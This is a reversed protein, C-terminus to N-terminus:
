GAGNRRELRSVIAQVRKQSSVAQASAAHLQRLLAATDNEVPELPGSGIGTLLWTPSVALIGAMMTLRNARPAARDCEWSLWSDTQVGLRSAADTVSLRSAERALSIRGGLTDDRAGDVADNRDLL